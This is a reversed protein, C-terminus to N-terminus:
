CIAIAVYRCSKMAFGLAQPEKFGYTKWTSLTIQGTKTDPAIGKSTSSTSGPRVSSGKTLPTNKGTPNQTFRIKRIGQSFISTMEMSMIYQCGTM